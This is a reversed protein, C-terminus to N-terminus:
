RKLISPKELVLGFLDLSGDDESHLLVAVVDLQRGGVSQEVREVEAVDIKM